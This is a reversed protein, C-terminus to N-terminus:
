PDSALSLFLEYQSANNQEFYFYMKNIIVRLDTKLISRLKLIRMFYSCFQDSYIPM